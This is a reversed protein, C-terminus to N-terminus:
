LDQREHGSDKKRQRAQHHMAPCKLHAVRRAMAVSMTITAPLPDLSPGRDLDATGAHPPSLLHIRGPFRRQGEKANETGTPHTQKHRAPPGTVTTIASIARFPLAQGAVPLSDQTPDSHDARRLTSLSDSLWALPRRFVKRPLRQVLPNPPWVAAGYHDPTLLGAPTPLFMHLRVISIGWSSPPRALPSMRSKARAPIAYFAAMGLVTGRIPLFRRGPLQAQLVDKARAAPWHFM